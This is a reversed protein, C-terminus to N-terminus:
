SALERVVNGWEATLQNAHAQDRGEALVHFVPRDADPLVLVWWDDRNVKIGDVQEDGDERYQENLLRMVRGKLEWSCPADVANVWYRPLSDVIDVLRDGQKALLEMLRAIAMMADFAPLFAPFIFGGDGDGALGVGHALA